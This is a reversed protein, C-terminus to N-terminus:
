LVLNDGPPLGLLQRLKAIYTEQAAIEADLVERRAYLQAHEAELAAVTGRVKRMVAIDDCLIEEQHLQRLGTEYGVQEEANLSEGRAQRLHLAWWRQYTTEDMM